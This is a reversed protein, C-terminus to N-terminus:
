QVTIKGQDVQVIQAALKDAFALDHTALVIMIPEASIALILEALEDVTKPDLAATPEDLVLINPNTMLTRAIAARQKQGGSLHHPKADVKDALGLQNLLAQAKENTAKKEQKLITTPVYTLNKLVSMHPFLQYDQLVMSARGETSVSGATPKELGAIMKLLTSKGSGSPGLLCTIKENGITLDIDSLVATNQYHKSVSKFTIM